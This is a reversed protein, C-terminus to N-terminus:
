VEGGAGIGDASDLVEIIRVGYRDGMVVAEGRAVLQGNIRIDLPDSASKPFAVTSGPALDLVESIRLGRRGLEVTLQVTVGLVRELPNASGSPASAAIPTVPEESSGAEGHLPVATNVLADSM